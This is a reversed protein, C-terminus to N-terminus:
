RQGGEPPPGGSWYSGSNSCSNHAASSCIGAASLRRVAAAPACCRFQAPEATLQLFVAATIVLLACKLNKHKIVNCRYKCHVILRM